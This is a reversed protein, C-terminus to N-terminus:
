GIVGALGGLILPIAAPFLSGQLLSVINLGNVSGAVSWVMFATVLGFIAVSAALRGGIVKTARLIGAIVTLACLVLAVPRATFTWSGLNIADTSLSFQLTAQHAARATLGFALGGLLGLVIQVGGILVHKPIRGRRAITIAVSLNTSAATLAAGAGEKLRFLARILRPAAIFIVILAEIVTVINISIGTGGEAATTVQMIRGGAQLAGILLGGFVTGWPTSRGLLAVTIADFGVNSDIGPVVQYSTAGDLLIIAGALGALAGAFLMAQVTSGSVSMGATRAAAPNAGVARLRFGTTSRSLLWWIAV